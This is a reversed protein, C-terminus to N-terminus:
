NAKIYSICNAKALGWKRATGKSPYPAAPHPWENRGIFFVALMFVAASGNPSGLGTRGSDHPQRSILDGVMANTRRAGAARRRIPVCRSPQPSEPVRSSAHDRPRPFRQPFAARAHRRDLGARRGTGMRGPFLLIVDANQAMTYSFAERILKLGFGQRRYLPNTLVESIGFAEYTEGEHFITTRPVALHCIVVGDDVYILSYPRTSPNGPWAVPEGDQFAQPWETRMFAIIQDKLHAPCDEQPIQLLEMM